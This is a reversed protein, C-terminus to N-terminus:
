EKTHADREASALCIATVELAGAELLTRACEDLTSGTTVVDDVLLIRKGALAEPRAARYAEQVNARREERTLEMQRRTEKHKELMQPGCPRGICHAVRKALLESHNYGRSRRSIPSSPVPVVTDCELTLGCAECKRAMLDGLTTALAMDDAFKLRLIADSVPAAYTYCAVIHRLHHVVGAREQQPLPADPQQLELVAAACPGCGADGAVRGCWPCRPPFVLNLLRELLNQQKM